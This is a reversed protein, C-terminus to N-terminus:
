RVNPLNEEIWKIGREMKLFRHKAKVADDLMALKKSPYAIHAQKIHEVDRTDWARQTKGLEKRLIGLELLGENGYVAVADKEFELHDQESVSARKFHWKLEALADEWTQNAAHLKAGLDESVKEMRLRVMDARPKGRGIKLEPFDEDSYQITSAEKEGGMDLDDHFDSLASLQQAQEPLAAIGQPQEATKLLRQIVIEPSGTEFEITRDEGEKTTNFRELFTSINALRVMTKVQDPLLANDRAIKEATDNIPVGKQVLDRAITDAAKDFDQETWVTAM